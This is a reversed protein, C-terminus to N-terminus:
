ITSRPKSISKRLEVTKSTSKSQRSRAVTQALFKSVIKVSFAKNKSVKKVKKIKNNKAYTKSKGEVVKITKTKYPKKTKAQATVSFSSTLILATLVTLLVGYLKTTTRKM